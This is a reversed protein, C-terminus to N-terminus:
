KAIAGGGNLRQLLNMFAVSGDKLCQTDNLVCFYVAADELTAEEIVLTSSTKNKSFHLKGKPNQIEVEDNPYTGGLYQPKQGSFQQYWQIMETTVSSLRCSFLYPKGELATASMPQEITKARGLSGVVLIFISIKALQRH